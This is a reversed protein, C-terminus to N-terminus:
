VIRLEVECIETKMIAGFKIICQEKKIYLVM